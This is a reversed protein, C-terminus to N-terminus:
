AADNVEIAAAPQLFERRVYCGPFRKLNLGPALLSRSSYVKVEANELTYHREVPTSVFRHFSTALVAFHRFTRPPHTTAPVRSRGAFDFPPHHELCTGEGERVVLRRGFLGHHFITERTTAAVHMTVMPTQNRPAMVVTVADPLLLAMASTRAGLRNSQSLWRRRHANLGWLVCGVNTKSSNFLSLPADCGFLLECFGDWSSSTM